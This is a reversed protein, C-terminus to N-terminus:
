LEDNRQRRNHESLHALARARGHSANSDQANSDEANPKDAKRITEPAEALRAYETVLASNTVRVQGNHEALATKLNTESSLIQWNCRTGYAVGHVTYSVGPSKLSRVLSIEEM